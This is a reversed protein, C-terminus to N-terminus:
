VRGIEQTKSMMQDLSGVIKQSAEFDKNIQIMAQMELIPNVNSEEIYGQHIEFTSEDAVAVEDNLITFNQNATRQLMSQDGVDAIVLQDIYVDGMKIEGSKTIVLKDKSTILAENINIEGNRSMVKNGQENVLFGDESIQFNGNNTLEIGNETKIMFLGRGTIALDLPNNTEVLAGSTFDTLQKNLQNEKRAIIEAFPVERKYGTTNINALNNAVIQISRMKSYLHQGADYLGKVM